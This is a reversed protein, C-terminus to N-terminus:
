GVYDQGTKILMHCREMLVEELTRKWNIVLFFLAENVIKKIVSTNEVSEDVIESVMKELTFELLNEGLAEKAQEERAVRVGILCVPQDALVPLRRKKIERDIFEPEARLERETLARWFNNMLQEQNNRMWKGYHSEEEIKRKEMIRQVLRLLEAEVQEVRFPKVLYGAAQYRIAVSAYQFETHCTLFLFESSMDNERVWKLLETGNGMPMEIDCVVIDAPIDALMEKAKEINYATMVKDIHLASWNVSKCIVDVTAMDDDVILVNM